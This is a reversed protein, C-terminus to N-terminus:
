EENLKNFSYNNPLVLLQNLQERDISNFINNDNNIYNPNCESCKIERKKIIKPKEPPKKQIKEKKKYKDRSFINESLKKIFKDTISKLMTKTKEDESNRIIENLKELNIGNYTLNNSHFLKLISDGCEAMVEEVLKNYMQFDNDVERIDEKETESDDLDDEEKKGSVKQCYKEYYKSINKHANWIFISIDELGTYAFNYTNPVQKILNICKLRTKIKYYTNNKYIDYIYINGDESGTMAYKENMYFNCEINYGVCKHKNFENIYYTDPKENEKPLKRLDWLRLLSDRGATLIYKDNKSLKVTNLKKQHAEFTQVIGVNKIFDNNQNQIRSDCIKVDGNRLGVIFLNPNTKMFSLSNITALSASDSTQNTISGIVRQTPLDWLKVVSSVCGSLFQVNDDRVSICRVWDSHELFTHINNFNRWLKITKDLSCSLFYENDEKGHFFEVGTVIENHSSMIKKLKKSKMDWIEITHHHNSSAMLNGTDNFNMAFICGDKNMSNLPFNQPNDLITWDLSINKMLLSDFINKSQNYGYYSFSKFSNQFLSLNKFYIIKDDKTPNNNTKNNSDLNSINLKLFKSNIYTNLFHDFIHPCYENEISVNSNNVDFLLKENNNTDKSPYNEM